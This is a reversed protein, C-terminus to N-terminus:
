FEETLEKCTYKEKLKTLFVLFNNSFQNKKTSQKNGEDLDFAIDLLVLNEKLLCIDLLYEWYFDEKIKEAKLIHCVKIELNLVSQNPVVKFEM